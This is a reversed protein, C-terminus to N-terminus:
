LAKHMGKSLPTYFTSMYVWLGMGHCRGELQLLKYVAQRDLFLGLHTVDLGEELSEPGESICLTDIKIFPNLRYHSEM